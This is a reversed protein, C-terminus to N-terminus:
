NEDAQKAANRLADLNVNPTPEPEPTQTRAEDVLQATRAGQNGGVAVAVVAAIILLVPAAWLWGHAIFSFAAGFALAVGALILFPGVVKHATDWVEEDKRVEPVRLGVVSNGPLRGATALVGPILLALAAIILLIGIIVGASM